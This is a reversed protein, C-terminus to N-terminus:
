KSLKKYKKRFTIRFYFPSNKARKDKYGMEPSETIVPTSFKGTISPNSM